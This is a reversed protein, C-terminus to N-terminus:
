DLEYTGELQKPIALSLISLIFPHVPYFIQPPYTTRNKM